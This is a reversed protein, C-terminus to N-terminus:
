FIWKTLTWFGVLLSIILLLVVVMCGAPILTDYVSKKPSVSEVDLEKKVLPEVYHILVDSDQDIWAAESEIPLINETNDAKIHDFLKATKLLELAFLLLGQKNARIFSEDKERGYLLIGFSADASPAQEELKDILIQLEQNTLM